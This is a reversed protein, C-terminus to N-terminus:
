PGDRTMDMNCRRKRDHHPAVALGGGSKEGGHKGASNSRFPAWPAAGGM